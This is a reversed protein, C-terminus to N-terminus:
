LFSRVNTWNCNHPSLNLNTHILCIQEGMLGAGGGLAGNESEMLEQIGDLIVVVTEWPLQPDCSGPMPRMLMLPNMLKNVLPALPLSHEELLLLLSFIGRWLLSATSPASLGLTCLDSVM